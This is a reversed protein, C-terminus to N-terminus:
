MVTNGQEAAGFSGEVQAATARRAKVEELLKKREERKQEILEAETAM